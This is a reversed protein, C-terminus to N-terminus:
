KKLLEDVEEKENSYFDKLKYGKIKGVINSPFCKVLKNYEVVNVNYYKEAGLLDNNYKKLEEVLKMEDDNFKVDKNYEVIELIENSYGNLKKNLEFTSLQGEHITNEIDIKKKEKKDEIINNINTILEIKKYLLIDINECAESIKILAIQFKNYSTIFLIALVVIIVVIAIILFIRM